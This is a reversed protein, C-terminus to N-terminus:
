GSGVARRILERVSMANATFAAPTWRGALSRVGCSTRVAQFHPAPARARSIEGGSGSIETEQWEGCSTDWAARFWAVRARKAGIKSFFSRGADWSAPSSFRRWDQRALIGTRARPPTVRSFAREHMAAPAAPM